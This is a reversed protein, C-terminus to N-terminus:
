PNKDRKVSSGTWGETLVLLSVERGPFSNTM